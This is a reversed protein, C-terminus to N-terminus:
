LIEVGFSTGVEPYGDPPQLVRRQGEYAKRVDYALSLFEGEKNRVLVSNENVEHVVEHLERLSNYDGCLLLGAHNKLLAYQLMTKEM